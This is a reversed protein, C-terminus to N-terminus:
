KIDLIEKAKKQYMERKKQNLRQTFDTIHAIFEEAKGIAERVDKKAITNDTYYQKDIREKKAEKLPANDIQFIQHLLMIVATHNECKVGIKYFLSLTSYYMSYYSLAVSDEYSEIDATVRASKLSKSSKEQYAKSINNNPQILQIKKQKVLTTYLRNTKMINNV